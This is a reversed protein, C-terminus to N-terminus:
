DDRGSHGQPMGGPANQRTFVSVLRHNFIDLFDRFAMDKQRMRSMLIETYPLPLPGQIGAIGMFNVHVETTTV